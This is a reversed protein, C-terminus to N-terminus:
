SGITGSLDKFVETIQAQTLEKYEVKGQKEASKEISDILPLLVYMIAEDVSEPEKQDKMKEFIARVAEVGLKESFAVLATQCRKLYVGSVEINILADLPVNPFKVTESM